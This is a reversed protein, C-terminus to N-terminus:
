KGSSARGGPTHVIQYKWDRSTIGIAIEFTDNWITRVSQSRAPQRISLYCFLCTRPETASKGFLDKSGTEAFLIGEIPDYDAVCEGKEDCGNRYTDCTIEWSNELAKRISPGEAEKSSVLLETTFLSPLIRAVTDSAATGAHGDFM